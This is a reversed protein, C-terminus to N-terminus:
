FGVRTLQDDLVYATVNPLPDGLSTLSHRDDPDLIGSFCSITAETPGYSSTQVLQPLHRRCAQLAEPIQPEGGTMVARLGTRKLKAFAPDGVANRLWSPTTKFWTVGSDRMAQFLLAMDRREIEDPLFLSGGSALAGFVCTLGLDFSPATVLAACDDPTLACADMLWTVYTVAARHPVVVGKRRGTSGSTFVVYAAADPLIDVYLAPLWPETMTQDFDLISVDTDMATDPSCILLVAAAEDLLDRRMTLPDDPNLFLFAAGSRLVALMATVMEVPDTLAIAVVKDMGAGLDVLKAALHGSGSLLDANSLSRQTFRIAAAGSTAALANCFMQTLSSPAAKQEPGTLAAVAGVWTLDICHLPREPAQAAVDLLRCFEDLLHSMRDNDFLDEPWIAGILLGDETHKVHLSIDFRSLPSGLGVREVDLNGLRLNNSGTNQLTLQAQFVPPRALDREPCLTQVLREFPLSQHTQADLAVDRTRQLLTEFSDDPAIRIRLPLSNVFFGIMPELATHDRGAVPTGIVIDSMGTQRQLVVAFASMLVHFLSARNTRALQDLRALVDPSLNRHDTGAALGPRNGRPGDTPLALTLPADGLADLWWDLDAQWAGLKELKQCWLAVDSVQLELPSIGAAGGAVAADYFASLERFFVGSSWGDFAIHHVTVLLVHRDLKLRLLRARLVPGNALDFPRRWEGTVAQEVASTQEAETLDTIDQVPLPVPFPDRVKQRSVGDVMLYHTRLIEHRAVVASLAQALADTDLAGNLTLAEPVNFEPTEGQRLQDIFWLRSQAPTLPLGDPLAEKDPVAVLPPRKAAADRRQIFELVEAKREKLESLLGPDIASAGPKVALQDGRASLSVGQRSLRA